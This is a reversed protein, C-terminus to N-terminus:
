LTLLKEIAISSHTHLVKKKGDNETAHTVRVTGLQIETDDDLESWVQWLYKPVRALIINQYAPDQNFELDGTDEYIDDDTLAAPSAGATEPDPKLYVGEMNLITIKSSKNYHQYFFVDVLQQHETLPLAEHM